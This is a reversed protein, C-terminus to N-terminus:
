EARDEPARLWSPPPRPTPHFSPASPGSGQSCLCRLLLKMHDGHCQSDIVTVFETRARSLWQLPALGEDSHNASSGSFIVKSNRSPLFVFSVRILKLSRDLALQTRSFPENETFM